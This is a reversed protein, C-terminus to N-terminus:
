ALAVASVKHISGSPYRVIDGTKAYQFIFSEVAAMGEKTMGCSQRHGLHNETVIEHGGARAMIRWVM